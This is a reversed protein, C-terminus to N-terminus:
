LAGITAKYNGKAYEANSLAESVEIASYVPLNDISTLVTRDHSEHLTHLSNAMQMIQGSLSTNIALACDRGLEPALESNTCRQVLQNIEVAVTSLLEALAISRERTHAVEAHIGYITEPKKKLQEHNLQTVTHAYDRQSEKLQHKLRENEAKVSDKEDLALNLQKVEAELARTSMPKCEEIREPTLAKREKENLRALISIQTPKLDALAPRNAEPSELFLKAINIYRTVTRQAIGRQELAKLFEGHGVAERLDMYRYGLRAVQIALAIEEQEIEAWKDNVAEPLTINIGQVQELIKATIPHNTTLAKSM